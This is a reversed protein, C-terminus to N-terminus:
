FHITFQTGGETNVKLTGKLQQALDGVIQMGLSDSRRFDIGEPIGVGNDAVTLSFGSQKHTAMRIFIDRGALTLSEETVLDRGGDFVRRYEEHINKGLFPFTDFLDKGLADDDLEYGLHGAWNRAYANFYIMRYRTDIVHIAVKQLELIRRYRTQVGSLSLDEDTKALM